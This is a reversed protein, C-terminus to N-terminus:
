QQHSAAHKGLLLRQAFQLLAKYIVTEAHEDVVVHGCIRGVVPWIGIHGSRSKGGCAEIAALPCLSGLRGVHGIAAKGGLMVAAEADPIGLCGVVVGHLRWGLDIDNALIDVGEALFTKADHEVEADEVCVVADAGAVDFWAVRLVDLCM